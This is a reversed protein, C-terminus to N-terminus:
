LGEAKADDAIEHLMTGVARMAAICEANTKASQIRDRAVRVLATMQTRVERAVGDAVKPQLATAPRTLLTEMEASMEALFALAADRTAQMQESIAM